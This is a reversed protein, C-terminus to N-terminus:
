KKALRDRVRELGAQLERKLNPADLYDRTAKGFANQHEVWALASLRVGGKEKSWSPQVNVEPNSASSGETLLARYMLAGFSGDFPKACVLSARGGDVIRGCGQACHASLDDAVAQASAKVLVSPTGEFPEGTTACATLLLTAALSVFVTKM